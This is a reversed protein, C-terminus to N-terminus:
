GQWDDTAGNTDNVVHQLLIFLWQLRKKALVAWIGICQQWTKGPEYCKQHCRLAQTGETSLFCQNASDYSKRAGSVM